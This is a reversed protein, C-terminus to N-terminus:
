LVNAQADVISHRTTHHVCYKSTRGCQQAQHHPSCLIQKHTWMATGPPATLVTDAKTCVCHQAKVRHHHRVLQRLLAVQPIGGGGGRGGRFCSGLAEQSGCLGCGKRQGLVPQGPQPRGAQMHSHAQAARRKGKFCKLNDSELGRYAIACFM